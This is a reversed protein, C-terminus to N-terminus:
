FNYTLKNKDEFLKKEVFLSDIIKLIEQEDHKKQFLANIHTFLTKRTRPRRNKDIRSLNDLVKTMQETNLAPLDDTKSLELISNIRKCPINLKNLHRVLPDFGTDKSLIIFSIDPISKSLSGLYFAIHFDLANKGEGDIKIWEISNGFGQAAQVVDFSIKNQTKGVFVKIEINPDRVAPLDINQINEYDIFLFTKEM